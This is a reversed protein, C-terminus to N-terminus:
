EFFHLSMEFAVSFMYVLLMDAMLLYNGAYYPVSNRLLLSQELDFNIEVKNIM